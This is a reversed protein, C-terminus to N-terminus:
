LESNRFGTEIEVNEIVRSRLTRRVDPMVEAKVRGGREVMV